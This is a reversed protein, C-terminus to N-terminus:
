PGLTSMNVLRCLPLRILLSIRNVHSASQPSKHSPTHTELTPFSIRYGQCSTLRFSTPKKGVSVKSKGLLFEGNPEREGFVSRPNPFCLSRPGENWWCEAKFPRNKRFPAPGTSTMRRVTYRFPYCLSFKVDASRSTLATPSVPCGGGVLVLWTNYSSPPRGKWAHVAGENTPM